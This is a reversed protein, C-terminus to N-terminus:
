RAGRVRPEEPLERRSHVGSRLLVRHDLCRENRHPGVDPPDRRLEPPAVPHEVAAVVTTSFAAVAAARQTPTSTAISAASIAAPTSTITAAVAAALQSSAADTATFHEVAAVAATSFAANATARQTPISSTAFFSGIAAPTSTITAAVVAAAVVAAVAAAVAAQVVARDRTMDVSSVVVEMRVMLEQHGDRRQLLGQMASHIADFDEGEWGYAVLEERDERSLFGCSAGQGALAAALQALEEPLAQQEVLASTPPAV